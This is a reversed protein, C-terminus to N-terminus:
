INKSNNLILIEAKKKITKLLEEDEINYKEMFKEMVEKNITEEKNKDLLENYYDELIYYKDELLDTLFKEKDQLEWKNNKLVEAYPLKKNTIKINHNEPHEPDYHIKKILKPIAGFAGNILNSLYPKDLYDMNENGYNLIVINQTINTTNNTTTKITNKITSKVNSLEVILDEIKDKLEKKELEWKIENENKEIKKVQYKCIKLHKTLGTKRTFHKKCYKCEFNLTQTSFPAIQTSDLHLFTSNPHLIENQLIEIAIDELHPKCINKRKFHTLMNTKKNTIYGCRKCKYEVM